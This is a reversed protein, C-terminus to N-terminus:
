KSALVILQGDYLSQFGETVIQDSVESDKVLKSLKIVLVDEIMKAM